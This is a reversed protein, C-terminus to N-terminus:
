VISGSIYSYHWIYSSEKFIVKKVARNINEKQSIGVTFTVLYKPKFPLDQSNLYGHWCFFFACTVFSTPSNVLVSLKFHCHIMDLIGFNLHCCGSKISSSPFSAFPQALFCCSILCICAPHIILYLTVAIRLHRAFSLKWWCHSVFIISFILYSCFVFVLIKCSSLSCAYALEKKSVIHLSTHVVEKRPPILWLRTPLFLLFPM